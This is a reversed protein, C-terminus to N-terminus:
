NMILAVSAIQVYHEIKDDILTIMKDKQEAGDVTVSIEEGINIQTVEIHYMTNNHRYHVKFSEWEKPVCPILKM